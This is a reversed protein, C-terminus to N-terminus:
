NESTSLRHLTKIEATNGYSTKLVLELKHLEGHSCNSIKVVVCIFLLSVPSFHLFIHRKVNANASILFTMM